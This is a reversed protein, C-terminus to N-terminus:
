ENFAKQTQEKLRLLRNLQEVISVWQPRQLPETPGLSDLMASITLPIRHINTKYFSINYQYPHKASHGLIAKALEPSWERDWKKAEEIISAANQKFHKLCYADQHASDLLELLEPYFSDEYAQAWKTDRFQVTAMVFAPLYKENKGTFQNLIGAPPMTDFHTEWFGPPIHQILQYLVFESDSYIKNNSLKDIGPAYEGKEPIAPPHIQLQTKTMMGLLAKEKKLFILPKIREIYSNVLASTPLQKLLNQAEDKVKQSKETLLSELWPEDEPQVTGDLLKLLETKSNATEQPWTQELWQRTKAPDHQRMQKLVLKRQDPTGTLWLEEGDEAPATATWAPNFQSLWQGRKGSAISVNQQLQKHNVARNLLTPVLEPPALKQKEVCRDLWYALLNPNDEALLDKAVQTARPSCYNQTEPPAESIQLAKEIQPKSGSQRFNFSLAALQLFQEEKDTTTNQAILKAAEQLPVPFVETTVPKKETGLMATNVIENWFQM